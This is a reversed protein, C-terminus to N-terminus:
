LFGLVFDLHQGLLAALKGPLRKVFPLLRKVVPAWLRGPIMAATGPMLLNLPPAPVIKVYRSSTIDAGSSAAATADFAVGDCHVGVSSIARAWFSPVAFDILGGRAVFKPDSERSLHRIGNM